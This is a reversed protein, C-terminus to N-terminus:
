VQGKTWDAINGINDSNEMTGTGSMVIVDFVAKIELQPDIYQKKM